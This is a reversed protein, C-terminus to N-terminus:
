FTNQMIEDITTYDQNTKRMAIYLITNIALDKDVMCLEM